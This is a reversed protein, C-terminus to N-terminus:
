RLAYARYFPDFEAIVFVPEKDQCLPRTVKLQLNQPNVVTVGSCIVLLGFRSNKTNSCYALPELETVKLWTILNVEVCVVTDQTEQIGIASKDLTPECEQSLTARLIVGHAVFIM